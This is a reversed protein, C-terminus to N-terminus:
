AIGNNFIIKSLFKVMSEKQLLLALSNLFFGNGLIDSISKFVGFDAKGRSAHDLREFYACNDPNRKRTVAKIKRLLLENSSKKCLANHMGPTDIFTWKIGHAEGDICRIKKTSEDQHINCGSGLISHITSSKGSGM